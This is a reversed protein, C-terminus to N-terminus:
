EGFQGLDEGYRAKLMGLMRRQEATLTNASTSGSCFADFISCRSRLLSQCRTIVDGGNRERSTDERPPTNHQIRCNASNEHPETSYDDSQVCLQETPHFQSSVVKNSM